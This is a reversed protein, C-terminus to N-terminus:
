RGLRIADHPRKEEINLHYSDLALGSAQGSFHLSRM